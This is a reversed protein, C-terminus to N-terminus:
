SCSRGVLRPFERFSTRFVEIFSPIPFETSSFRQKLLTRVQTAQCHGLPGAAAAAPAELPQRVPQVGPQPEPQQEQELQFVSVAVLQYEPLQYLHLPNGDINIM